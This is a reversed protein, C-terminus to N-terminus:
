KSQLRRGNKVQVIQCGELEGELTNKANKMEKTSINYVSARTINKEREHGVFFIKKGVREAYFSACNSFNSHDITEKSLVNFNRDYETIYIKEVPRRWGLDSQKSCHSILCYGKETEYFEDAYEDTVVKMNTVKGTSKDVRQLWYSYDNGRVDEMGTESPICYILSDEEVVMLPVSYDTIKRRNSFPYNFYSEVNYKEEIEENYLVIKKGNLKNKELDIEYTMVYRENIPSDKKWYVDQTFYLKQGDRVNYAVPEPIDIVFMFEKGDQYVFIYSKIEGWFNLIEMDEFRTIGESQCYPETEMVKSRAKEYYESNIYAAGASMPTVKDSSVPFLKNEEEDYVCRYGRYRSGTIDKSDFYFELVPGYDSGDEFKKVNNCGGLFLSFVVILILFRGKKM